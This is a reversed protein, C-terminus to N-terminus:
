CRTSNGHRATRRQATPPRNSSFHQRGCARSRHERWRPGVRRRRGGPRVQAMHEAEQPTKFHGGYEKVRGFKTRGVLSSSALAVNPTRYNYDKVAYDSPVARLTAGVKRVRRAGGDPEYRVPPDAEVPPFSANDDSFVMVDRGSVHEFFFSIGLHEALRACFDYDTEGYQLVFERSAYRRILRFEFDKREEFGAAELKSQIIEPITQALFVQSTTNLKMRWARPVFTLRHAPHQPRVPVSIDQVCCISGHIRRVVEGDAEFLLEASSAVVSVEDLGSEDRCVVGVDFEFLTGIGERGSLEFIEVFGDPMAPGVISVRLIHNVVADQRRWYRHQRRDRQPLHPERQLRRRQRQLWRHYSDDPLGRVAMAM